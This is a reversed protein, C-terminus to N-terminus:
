AAAGHKLRGMGRDEVTGGGAGALMGRGGLLAPLPTAGLNNVNEGRVSAWRDRKRTRFWGGGLGNWGGRRRAM